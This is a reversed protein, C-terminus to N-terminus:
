HSTPAKLHHSSRSKTTKTVLYSTRKVYRHRQARLSSRFSGWTPTHRVIKFNPWRRWWPFIKPVVFFTRLPRNPPTFPDTPPAHNKPSVAVYPHHFFKSFIYTIPPQPPLSLREIINPPPEGSLGRPSPRRALLKPRLSWATQGGPPELTRKMFAGQIRLPPHTAPASCSLYTQCRWSTPSLSHKSVLGM